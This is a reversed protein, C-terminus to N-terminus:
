KRSVTARTAKAQKKPEFIRDKGLSIRLMPLVKQLEKLGADTVKAGGLYLSKLQEFGALEKLGADTVETRHLCRAADKQNEVPQQTTSRAMTGLSTM